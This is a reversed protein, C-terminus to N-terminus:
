FDRRQFTQAPSFQASCIKVKKLLYQLITNKFVTPSTYVRPQNSSDKFVCDTYLGFLDSPDIKNGDFINPFVINVLQYMNPNLGISGLKLLLQIIVEPTNQTVDKKEKERIQLM